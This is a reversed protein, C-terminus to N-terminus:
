KSKFSIIHRRDRKDPRKDPAPSSAAHLRHQEALRARREISEPTEAYLGQAVSAPGRREALGTVLLDIVQQEKQVCIADGIHVLKSAKARVGNLRVHGGKVADSALSRMKYFRAAWLWKDIRVGADEIGGGAITDRSGSDGSVM